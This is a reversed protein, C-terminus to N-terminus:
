WEHVFNSARGTDATFEGGGQGFTPTHRGFDSPQGSCVLFATASPDVARWKQSTVAPNADPHYNDHVAILDQTTSPPLSRGHSRVLTTKVLGRMFARIMEAVAGIRAKNSRTM